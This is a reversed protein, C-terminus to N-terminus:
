LRIRGYSGPASGAGILFWPGAASNNLRRRMVFIDPTGDGLSPLYRSCRHCRLVWTVAALAISLWTVAAPLTLAAGLAVAIRVGRRFLVVLPPGLLKAFILGIM